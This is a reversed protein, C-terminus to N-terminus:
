TNCLKLNEFTVNTPRLMGIAEIVNQPPFHESTVNQPKQRKKKKLFCHFISPPLKSLPGNSMNTSNMHFKPCVGVVGQLRTSSGEVAELLDTTLPVPM